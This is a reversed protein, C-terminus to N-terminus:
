FRRAVGFNFRNVKTAQNATFIPTFRYSVDGFWKGFPVTVGGGINLLASTSSGALDKGLTVGYQGLNGSVDTGGLVFTTKPSTVAFGIGGLAYVDFKQMSYVLRRVNFVGYGAPVKISSSAPQGQTQSLYNAIAGASDLRHQSVVSSMWGAEISFDLNHWVNTKGVEGYVEGGTKKTIVVGTAGGAWSDAVLWSSFGSKSSSSSGQAPQTSPPTPDQAFAFQPGLLAAAIFAAAAFRKM